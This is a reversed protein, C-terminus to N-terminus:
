RSDFRSRSHSLPRSRHHPPSISLSHSLPCRDTSPPAHPLEGALSASLPRLSLSLYRSISTLAISREHALSLNLKCTKGKQKTEIIKFFYYYYYYYFHCNVLVAPLGFYVAPESFGCRRNV